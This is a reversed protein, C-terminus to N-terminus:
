FLDDKTVIGSVIEESYMSPKIGNASIMAIFIQKQTGTRKKYVEKKNLLTAAYQKDIVFPEKSYKIECLTIADDKRDFLM